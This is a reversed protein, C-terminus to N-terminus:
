LTENNGAVFGQHALTYEAILRDAGGDVAILRVTQKQTPMRRLSEGPLLMCVRGASADFPVDRLRDAGRILDLRSVNDLAAEYTVLTYVDDAAVACAVELGPTLVYRRTVLGQDEMQRALALTVPMMAEGEQVLARIAPGLRLLAQYRGACAGCSLVHEEVQQDAESSLEGLASAILEELPIM